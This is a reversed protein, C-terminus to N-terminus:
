LGNGSSFRSFAFLSQTFHIVLFLPLILFARRMRFKPVGSMQFYSQRSMTILILAHVVGLQFIVTFWAGFVEIPRADYEDYWTIVGLRWLFFYAVEFVAFFGLTRVVDLRPRAIFFVAALRLLVFVYWSPVFRNFTCTPCALVSPIDLIM